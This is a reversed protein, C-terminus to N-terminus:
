ALVRFCFFFLELPRVSARSSCPLQRYKAAQMAALRSKVSQSSIMGCIMRTLTSERIPCAGTFDAAARGITSASPPAAYRRCFRQTGATKIAPLFENKLTHEQLMARHFIILLHCLLLTLMEQYDADCKQLELIIHKFAREYELSTGVPFIREKDTFGNKRLINKVESGTFHVWYVETKDKGYFEYKQLEAPRYLVVNGASVITENELKDFHFHVLGSAIYIIQFDKRGKPRYTPMKPHSSLRYTGCSGVILPRTRDKFDLHSNNLYGSNIYM